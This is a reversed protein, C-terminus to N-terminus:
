PMSGLLGTSTAAPAVPLLWVLAAGVTVVVLALSRSTVPLSTWVPTVPGPGSRVWRIIVSGFPSMAASRTTVAAPEYSVLANSMEGPGQTMCVTAKRAAVVAGGALSLVGGTTATLTGADPAVSLPRTVTVTVAVSGA